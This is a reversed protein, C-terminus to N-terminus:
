GLTVANPWVSSAPGSTQGPLPCGGREWGPVGQWTASPAPWGGRWSQAGANGPLGGAGGGRGPGVKFQCEGVKWLQAASNHSAALVHGGQLLPSLPSTLLGEEAEAPDRPGPRKPTERRKPLEQLRCSAAALSKGAARGTEESTCGVTSRPAQGWVLGPSCDPTAAKLWLLTLGHHCVQHPPPRQLPLSHLLCSAGGCVSPSGTLSPPEGKAQDSILKNEPHLSSKQVSSGLALLAGQLRFRPRRLVPRGAELPRSHCKGWNGWQPTPHGQRGGVGVRAASCLDPLPPPFMGVALRHPLPELGVRSGRTPREILGVCPLLSHPDDQEMGSSSSDGLEAGALGSFAQDPLWRRSCSPACGHPPPPTPCGKAWSGQFRLWGLCAASMEAGACEGPHPRSSIPPPPPHWLCQSFQFRRVTGASTLLAEQTPPFAVAAPCPSWPTAVALLQRASIDCQPKATGQSVGLELTAEIHIIVGNM